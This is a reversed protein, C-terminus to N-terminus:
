RLTMQLITLRWFDFLEKIEGTHPGNFGNITDQLLVMKKVEEPIIVDRYCGFFNISIATRARLYLPIDPLLLTGNFVEGRAVSSPAECRLLNALAEVTDTIILGEKTGVSIRTLAHDFVQFLM